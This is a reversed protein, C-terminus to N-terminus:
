YTRAFPGHFKYAAERYAAAALEATPYIGLYIYQKNVRIRAMWKGSKKHFCAGKPAPYKRNKTTSNSNNQACTAIRLNELRDDARKGNVHDVFPDPWQHHVYFWALRAARYDRDDISISRYGHPGISGAGSGAAQRGTKKRWTFVGTAADYRLLQTLREHIVLQVM